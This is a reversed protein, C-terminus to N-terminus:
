IYKDLKEEPTKKEVCGSSVFCFCIIFVLFISLKKSACM